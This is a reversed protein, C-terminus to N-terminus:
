TQQQLCKSKVNTWIYLPISTLSIHKVLVEIGFYCYSIIIDIAQISVALEDVDVVLFMLSSYKESLESYYPAIM